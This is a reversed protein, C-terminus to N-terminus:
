AGRGTPLSGCTHRRGVRGASSDYSRSPAEFCSIHTALGRCWSRARISGCDAGAMGFGFWCATSTFPALLSLLVLTEVEPMTGEEPTADEDWAGSPGLPVPTGPPVTIHRFAVTGELRAGSRAAVERWPIRRTLSPGDWAPHLIRAYAAYGGPVLARVRIGEETGWDRLMDGVSTSVTWLDTVPELEKPTHEV